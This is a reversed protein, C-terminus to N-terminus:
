IHLVCYVSRETRTFYFDEYLTVHIHTYTYRQGIVDTMFIILILFYILARAESSIFNTTPPRKQLAHVMIEPLTLSLRAMSGECQTSFICAPDIDLVGPAPFPFPVLCGGRFARIHTMLKGRPVRVYGHSRLRFTSHFSM